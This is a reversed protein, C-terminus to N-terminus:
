VKAKICNFPQSNWVSSVRKIIITCPILSSVPSLHFLPREGPAQLHDVPFGSHSPDVHMDQANNQTGVWAADSTDGRGARSSQWPHRQQWLRQGPGHHGWHGSLLCANGHCLPVGPKPSVPLLGPCTQITGYHCHFRRCDNIAPKCCKTLHPRVLLVTPDSYYCASGPLM